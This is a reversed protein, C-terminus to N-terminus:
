TSLMAEVQTPSPPASIGDPGVIGGPGGLGQAAKLRDVAAKTLAPEDRQLPRYNGKADAMAKAVRDATQVPSAIPYLKELKADASTHKVFERAIFAADHLGNIQMFHLYQYDDAPVRFEALWLSHNAFAM